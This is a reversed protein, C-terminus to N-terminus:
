LMFQTRYISFGCMRHQWQQFKVNYQIELYQGYDLLKEQTRVIKMDTEEREASCPAQFTTFYMKQKKSLPLSFFLCSLM